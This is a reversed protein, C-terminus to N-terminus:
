KKFFADLQNFQEDDLEGKNKAELMAQQMKQLAM